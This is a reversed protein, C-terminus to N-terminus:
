RQDYIANGTIVKEFITSNSTIGRFEKQGIMNKVEGSDIINRSLNAM